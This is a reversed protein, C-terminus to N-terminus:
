KMTRSALELAGAVVGGQFLGGPPLWLSWNQDNTNILSVGFNTSILFEPHPYNALLIQGVTRTEGDALLVTIDGWKSVYFSLTPSEGVWMNNYTARIQIDGMQTLAEDNYGQLRMKAYNVLYGDGDVYFAGARTAYLANSNTDRVMFYGKGALALDTPIGTMTLFSEGFATMPTQASGLHLQPVPQEYEGAVLTGLGNTGPASPQSWTGNTPWTWLGNLWPGLSEPNAFNELVIQGVVGQSGDACHVHVNGDATIWHRDPAATTWLSRTVNLDFILGPQLSDSGQLREGTPTVLFGNADAWFNGQRTFCDNGTGPDLVM